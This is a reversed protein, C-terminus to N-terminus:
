GLSMAFVHEAQEREDFMFENSPDSRELDILAQKCKLGGGYGVLTGSSGIVRHCPIVIAIPNHGNAAGVARAASPQGIRRALEGYSITQGYPIRRLAKWVRLQFPTGDPALPMDFDRRQQEFYERLQRCPEAFWADDRQWSRAPSPQRKHRHTPL